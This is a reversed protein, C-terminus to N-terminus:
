KALFEVVFELGPFGEDEYEKNCLRFIFVITHDSLDISYFRVFILCYNLTHYHLYCSAM